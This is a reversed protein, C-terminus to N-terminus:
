QKDNIDRKGKKNHYIFYTNWSVILIIISIILAFTIADIM